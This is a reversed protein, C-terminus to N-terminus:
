CSKADYHSNAQNCMKNYLNMCLNMLHFAYFVNYIVCVIHLYKLRFEIMVFSPAQPFWCYFVSLFTHRVSRDFM